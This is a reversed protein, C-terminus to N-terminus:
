NIIRLQQERTLHSVDIQAFNITSLLFVLLISGIYKNM